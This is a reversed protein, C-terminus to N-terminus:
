PKKQEAWSKASCKTKTDAPNLTFGGPWATEFQEHVGNEHTQSVFEISAFEAEPIVTCKGHLVTGRNTQEFEFIYM